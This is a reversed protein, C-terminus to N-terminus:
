GTLVEAAAAPRQAKLTRLFEQPSQDGLSGHPRDRNYEIRWAEITHRADDLTEIWHANLCEKRLLSNFSEIQANEVLKGPRIFDLTVGNTYAWLDLAKSVFESGYDVTITEPRRGHAARQELVRV